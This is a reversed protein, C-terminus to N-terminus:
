AIPARGEQGASGLVETRGDLTVCIAAMSDYLGAGHLDGLGLVKLIKRVESCFGYAEPPKGDEQM